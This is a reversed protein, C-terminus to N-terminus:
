DAFGNDPLGSLKARHRDLTFIRKREMGFRVNAGSQLHCHVGIWQFDGIPPLQTHTEIPDTEKIIAKSGIHFIQYVGCQFRQYDM